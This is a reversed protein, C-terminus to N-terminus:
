GPLLQKAIDIASRPNVGYRREYERASQDDALALVLEERSSGVRCAVADAARLVADQAFGAIGGSSPLQRDQCPDAIVVPEPRVSQALLGFVLVGAVSGLAVFGVLRDAAAVPVAIALLAAALLALGAAVLFATRFGDNVATM